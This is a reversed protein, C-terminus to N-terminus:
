MYVHEGKPLIREADVAMLYQMAVCFTMLLTAVATFSKMEVVHHRCFFTFIGCSRISSVEAEVQDGICAPPVAIYCVASMEALEGALWCFLGATCQGVCWASCLVVRGPRGLVLDNEKSKLGKDTHM